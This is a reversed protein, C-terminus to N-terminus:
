FRARALAVSPDTIAPGFDGRLLRLALMEQHIEASTRVGLRRFLVLPPCWGQLAHQLLFAAVAVPLVLFWADVVVALALGILAVTAANAELTREIDWEGHLERIRQGIVREPAGAHRALQELMSARIRSNAQKSTHLAVRDDTDPLAADQPM